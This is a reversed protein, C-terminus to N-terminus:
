PKKERVYLRITQHDDEIQYGEYTESRMRYMEIGKAEVLNKISSLLDGDELPHQQFVGEIGRHPSRHAKGRATVSNDSIPSPAKSTVV